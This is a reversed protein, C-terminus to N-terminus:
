FYFEAFRYKCFSKMSRRIVLLNQYNDTYRSATSATCYTCSIPIDSTSDCIHDCFGNIPYVQWGSFTAFACVCLFRVRPASRDVM